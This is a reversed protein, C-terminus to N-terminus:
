QDADQAAQRVFDGRAVLAGQQELAVKNQMRINREIRYRQVVSTFETESRPIRHRSSHKERLLSLELCRETLTPKFSTRIVELATKGLLVESVLDVPM